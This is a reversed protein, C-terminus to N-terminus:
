RAPAATWVSGPKRVAPTPVSLVKALHGVLGDGGGVAEGAGRERQALACGSTAVGLEAGGVQKAGLVSASSSRGAM